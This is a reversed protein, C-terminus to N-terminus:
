PFLSFIRQQLAYERISNGSPPVIDAVQDALRWKPVIYDDGLRHVIIEAFYVLEALGAETERRGKKWM